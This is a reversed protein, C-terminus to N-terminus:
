EQKIFLVYNVRNDISVYFKYNTLYELGTQRGCATTAGTIIKPAHSSAMKHCPLVM